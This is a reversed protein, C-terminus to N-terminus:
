AFTASHYARGWGKPTWYDCQIRRYGFRVPRATRPIHTDSWEIRTDLAICRAFCEPTNSPGLALYSFGIAVIHRM